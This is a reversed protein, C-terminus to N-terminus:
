GSLSGHDESKKGEREVAEGKKEQHHVMLAEKEEGEVRRPRHTKEGPARVVGREERKQARLRSNWVTRERKKEKDASSSHLLCGKEKEGRLGKRKGKTNYSM